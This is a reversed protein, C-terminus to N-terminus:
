KQKEKALAEAEETEWDANLKELHQKTHQEPSKWGATADWTDCTFECDTYITAKNLDIKPNPTYRCRRLEHHPAGLPARPKFSLRAFVRDEYVEWFRCTGCVKTGQLNNHHIM